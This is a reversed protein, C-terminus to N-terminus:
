YDINLNRMMMNLLAKLLKSENEEFNAFATAFFRRNAEDILAAIQKGSETLEITQERKDVPSINTAIHGKERLMKVSRSVLAKSVDSTLAIESATNINELSSLVVIENPSLDYSILANQLFDIYNKELKKYCSFYYAANKIEM